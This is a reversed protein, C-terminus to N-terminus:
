PDDKKLWSSFLIKHNGQPGFPFYFHGVQLSLVVVGM